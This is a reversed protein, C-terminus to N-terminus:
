GCSTNRWWNRKM